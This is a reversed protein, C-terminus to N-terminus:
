CSGDGNGGLLRLRPQTAGSAMAEAQGEDLGGALVRLGEACRIFGDTWGHALGAYYPYPWEGASAEIEKAAAEWVMALDRLEGREYDDSDLVRCYFSGREHSHDRRIRDRRRLAHELSDFSAQTREVGDLGVFTLKYRGVSIVGLGRL